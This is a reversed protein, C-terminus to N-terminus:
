SVYSWIIAGFTLGFTLNFIILGFIILVTAATYVSSLIFFGISIFLLSIALILTGVQLLTKKGVRHLIFISIVAGLFILFNLLIPVIARMSPIVEKIISGGYTVVVDIGSFQRLIM